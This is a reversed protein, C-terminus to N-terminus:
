GAPDLVELYHDLADVRCSLPQAVDFPGGGPLPRLTSRERAAAAGVTEVRAAIRQADDAADADSLLQNLAALSDLILDESGKHLSHPHEAVVRGAM